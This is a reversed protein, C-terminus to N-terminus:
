RLRPPQAGSRLAEPTIPERNQTRVAGCVQARVADARLLLRQVARVGLAAAEDVEVRFRALWIETPYQRQERAKQVLSPDVCKLCQEIEAAVRLVETHAHLRAQEQISSMSNSAEKRRM